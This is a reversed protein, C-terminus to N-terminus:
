FFNLAYLNWGTIRMFYNDWSTNKNIGSFYTRNTAFGVSCHQTWGCSIWRRAACQVNIQETWEPRSDTVRKWRGVCQWGTFLGDCESGCCGPWVCFSPGSSTASWGVAKRTNCTDGVHLMHYYKKTRPNWPQNKGLDMMFVEWRRWKWAPLFGQTTVLCSLQWHRCTIPRLKIFGISSEVSCRELHRVGGCLYKRELIFM